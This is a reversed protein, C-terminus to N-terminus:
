LLYVSTYPLYGLEGTPLLVKFWKGNDVVDLVQVEIGALVPELSAKASNENADRYLNSPHVVVAEIKAIYKDYILGLLMLGWCIGLLILLGKLAKMRMWVFLSAVVLMAVGLAFTIQLREPLSLYTHLFFIQSFISPSETTPLGLKNLTINLNQSVKSDRPRLAQARYYYYIAMPYEELQFYTNALNFYLKGDGFNPNYKADLDGYITLAQNFAVKREEITQAIEGQGYTTQADMLSESVSKEVGSLSSLLMLSVTFFVNTYSFVNM